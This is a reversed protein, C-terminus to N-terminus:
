SLSLQHRARELYLCVIAHLKVATGSFRYASPFSKETTLLPSNPSCELSLGPSYTNPLFSVHGQKKFSSREVAKIVGINWRYGSWRDYNVTKLWPGSGSCKVFLVQSFYMLGVRPWRSKMVRAVTFKFLKIIIAYVFSYNCFNVRKACSAAAGKFVLEWGTWKNVQAWLRYPVSSLPQHIFM